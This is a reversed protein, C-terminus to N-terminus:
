PWPDHEPQDPYIRPMERIQLDEPWDYPHGGHQHDTEHDRAWLEGLQKVFVATDQDRCQQIISRFWDLDVSRIEDRPGSEGGIIAWDIGDLDLEGLDEILPEFSVYTVSAECDRLTDLRGKSDQHGVSTGAWINEKWPLYPDMEVYREPRKTLLQWVNSEVDHMTEFVRHIYDDDCREHFLDSMSGVFIYEDTWGKEEPVDLREPRTAFNFGREGYGNTNMKQWKQAREEAYCFDCEASVHDCGTTPNWTKSAWQINTAGM